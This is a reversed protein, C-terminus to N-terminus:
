MGIKPCALESSFWCVLHCYGNLLGCLGYKNQFQCTNLAYGGCGEGRVQWDDLLIRGHKFAPCDLTLTEYEGGEGCVNCGFQDRLRRLHPQLQRISKGLHKHPDLGIAAVQSLPVSPHWNTICNTIPQGATNSHQTTNHQTLHKYIVDAAYAVLQPVYSTTILQFMCVQYSLLSYACLSM